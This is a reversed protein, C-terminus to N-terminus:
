KRTKLVVQGDRVTLTITGHECTDLLEVSRERFREVVEPAPHGYRNDCGRSFVVTQPDVADIFAPDSSTKSGHHGAKLVDAQVTCQGSLACTTLHREISAPADGTLLVETDGYVVRLIVSATNSEVGSVDRDPFLVELYAGGGLLIRTGARAVVRVPNEQELERELAHYAPTDASNGSELFYEVEYRSLVHVLGGIHDQDPHTAVVADLTRDFLPLARSLERLVGRTAGGDVLVQTGTPSQILIADGQGVNLFSVTFAREPSVSFIGVTILALVALLLIRRM